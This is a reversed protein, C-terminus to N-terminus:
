LGIQTSQVCVLHIRPEVRSRSFIIFFRQTIHMNKNIISISRRFKKPSSGTLSFIQIIFNYFFMTRRPPSTGWQSLHLTRYASEPEMNNLCRWVLPNSQEISPVVFGFRTNGLACVASVICLIVSCIEDILQVRRSDGATTADTLPLKFQSNERGIIKQM